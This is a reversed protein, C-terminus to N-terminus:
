CMIVHQVLRRKLIYKVWNLGLRIRIDKKFNFKLKNHPTILNLKNDTKTERSFSILGYMSTSENLKTIFTETIM